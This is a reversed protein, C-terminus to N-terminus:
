LESREKEVRRVLQERAKAAYHRCAGSDVLARAEQREWLRSAGPHTTVLIDCSLGELVAHGREFDAIADPYHESTTFKFGDASVPTQSDAYVISLCSDEECSRWSWTTGGPMHGATFHATLALPGVRLTEGNAIERVRSVAPFSPVEGHQPDSPGSEGRLLVLRSPLSAAVDAGSVRQLAAIGGAHDFHAHTNLILRVDEVRFGLKRINEEILPASEPLAGDILVHGESSAVLIAGLGRPGVYYSNGHIRFPEQPANWEVCAACSPVPVAVATGTSQALLSLPCGLTIPLLLLTRYNM